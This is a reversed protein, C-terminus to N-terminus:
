SLHEPLVQLLEVNLEFTAGPPIESMRKQGSGVKAPAIVTRKGGVGDRRHSHLQVLLNLVIPWKLVLVSPREYAYGVWIAVFQSSRFVFSVEANMNHDGHGLAGFFYDFEMEDNTLPSLVVSCVLISKFCSGFWSKGFMLYCRDVNLNLGLSIHEFPVSFHLLMLDMVLKQDILHYTTDLVYMLVDFLM